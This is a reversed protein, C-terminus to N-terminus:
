EDLTKLIDEFSSPKILYGTVGLKISKILYTLETYASTIIIEQKESHKRINSILELGDMKPMQIDTIVIDYKNNLYKDLAEKGDVAVDTHTFIKSLFSATRDRLDKEDEVYLIFLDKAKIKLSELHIQMNYEM